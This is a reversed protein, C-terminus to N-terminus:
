NTQTTAQAAAEAQKKKLHARFEALREKSKEVGALNHKEQPDNVLNYLEEGDPWKGYRWRQNRLAYGLQPGRRVITYAFKKKGMREPHDLLPRLSTGQLHDPLPLKACEALTPYIDILEVMAQSETGPKTIGHEGEFTKRAASVVPLEDNEYRLYTHWATEGQEHRTSHFVKGVSATWYGHEKFFRPLSPTNPRTLRIDAKNDIVGSSAPYLGHLFSARSPGCVPYQCFARHFTMSQKAFQDLTPTHIPDYGSPSIHTNLDDCVIFLINKGNGETKPTPEAPVLSTSGFLALFFSLTRLLQM